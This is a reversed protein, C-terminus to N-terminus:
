DEEDNAKRRCKKTFQHVHWRCRNKKQRVSAAVDEKDLVWKCVEVAFEGDAKITDVLETNVEKTYVDWGSEKIGKALFAVVLERLGGAEEDCGQVEKLKLWYKIWPMDEVAARCFADLLANAWEELDLRIACIYAEIIEGCTKLCEEGTTKSLDAPTYVLNNFYLWNVLQDATSKSIESGLALPPRDSADPFLRILEDYKRALIPSQYLMEKHIVIGELDRGLTVPVVDSPFSISKKRALAM